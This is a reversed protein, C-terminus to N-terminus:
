TLCEGGGAPPAHPEYYSHVTTLRGGAQDSILRGFEAATLPGARKVAQHNLSRDSIVLYPRAQSTFEEAQLRARPLDRDLYVCIFKDALQRQTGYDWEAEGTLQRWGQPGQGLIVVLPRQWRAAEARALVYDGHWAIRPSLLGQPPAAEFILLLAPALVALNM